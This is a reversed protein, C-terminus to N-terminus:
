GSMRDVSGARAVQCGVGALGGVVLYAESPADVVSLVVVAVAVLITTGTAVAPRSVLRGKQPVHNQKEDYM